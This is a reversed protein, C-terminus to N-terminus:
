EMIMQILLSVSDVEGVAYQKLKSVAHSMSYGNFEKIMEIDSYGDGITYVDEDKIKEQEIVQKIATIKSSKKSIMEIHYSFVEYINLQNKYKYQLYSVEQDYNIKNFALHIKTIGLDTPKVLGEESTSFFNGYTNSKLIYQSPNMLDYKSIIENLINRDILTNYVLSDNKYISSGHNVILYDYKIPYSQIKEKFSTLSSGTAIVFLNGADRFQNIRLIDEDHIVGNFYLTDDFDSILIKSM